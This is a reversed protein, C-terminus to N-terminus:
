GPLNVSHVGQFQIEFIRSDGDPALHLVFGREDHHRDTMKEGGTHLDETDPRHKVPETIQFSPGQRFHGEKVSEDINGKCQRFHEAPPEIQKGGHYFATIKVHDKEAGPAGGQLNGAPFYLEHAQAAQGLSEDHQHYGAHDMINGPMGAINELHHEGQHPPAAQKAPEKNDLGCHREPGRFGKFDHIDECVAAGFGALIWERYVAWPEATEEGEHHWQCADRVERGQSNELPFVGDDCGRYQKLAGSRSDTNHKQKHGQLEPFHTNPM